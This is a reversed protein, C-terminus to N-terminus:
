NGFPVLLSLVNLRYGALGIPEAKGSWEMNEFQNEGNKFRGERLVFSLDNMSEVQSYQM